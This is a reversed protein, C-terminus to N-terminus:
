IGGHHLLWQTLQKATHCNAVSSKYSLCRICRPFLLRLLLCSTLWWGQVLKGDSHCVCCGKTTLRPRELSLVRHVGQANTQPGPWTSFLQESIPM